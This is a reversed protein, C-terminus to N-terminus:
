RGLPLEEEVEPRPGLPTAHQARLTGVFAPLEVEALETVQYGLGLIEAWARYNSVTADDELAGLLSGRDGIATITYPPSYVRGQLYLTNGVCRVASTSIIRQDQVMMAEAGGAWLANIVGQVDQQHVVVDDVTYDAPLTELTYGADDLMVQVGPGRVAESGVLPALAEADVKAPLPSADSAEDIETRLEEVQTALAEVQATRETILGALTEPEAPEDEALAASTGFLLGAGLAMVPVLVRWAGRGSPESM